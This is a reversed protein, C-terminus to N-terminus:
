EFEKRKCAPCKDGKSVVFATRPACNCEWWGNPHVIGMGHAWLKDREEQTLNNVSRGSDPVIRGRWREFWVYDIVGGIVCGILIALYDM